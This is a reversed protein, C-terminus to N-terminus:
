LFFIFLYNLTRLFRFQQLEEFYYDVIIGTVFKPNLSNAIVDTKYPTSEWSQTKSDKILLIVQVSLAHLARPLNECSIRLEVKSHAHRQQKQIASNM